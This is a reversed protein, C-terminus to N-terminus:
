SQARARFQAALAHGSSVVHERIITEVAQPDRARLAEVIRRHEDRSRAANATSSIYINIYPACTNRLNTILGLLRPRLAAEYITFHFRDNLDLWEHVDEEHAEMMERISDLEDLQAETMRPTALRGALAEVTARLFFIEDLEDPDLEAVTAGRHPSFNILGESALTRLAERVPMRSVGFRQSLKTQDLKEGPRLQGRLIADRIANVLAEQLTRTQIVSAGELYESAM